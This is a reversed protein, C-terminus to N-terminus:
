STSAKNKVQAANRSAPERKSEHVVAAAWLEELRYETGCEPCRCQTLGSLNYQCKPCTPPRDRAARWGRVYGNRWLLFAAFLSLAAVLGVLLWVGAEVLRM